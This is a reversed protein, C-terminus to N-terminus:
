ISITRLSKPLLRLELLRDELLRLRLLPMIRVGTIRWRPMLSKRLRRQDVTRPFGRASEVVVVEESEVVDSVQDDAMEVVLRQAALTVPVADKVQSMVTSTVQLQNVSMPTVSPPSRVHDKPQVPSAILLPAHLHLLLTLHIEAVVKPVPHYTSYISQNVKSDNTQKECVYRSFCVKRMPVMLNESQESQTKHPSMLSMHLVRLVVLVIM